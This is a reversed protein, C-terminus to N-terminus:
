GNDEVFDHIARCKNCYYLSGLGYGGLFGYHDDLDCEGSCGQDRCLEPAYEKFKGHILIM